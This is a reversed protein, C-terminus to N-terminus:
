KKKSNKRFKAMLRSSFSNKKKEAKALKALRKQEENWVGHTHMLVDPRDKFERQARHAQLKKMAEADNEEKFQKVKADFEEQTLVKHGPPREYENYRYLPDKLCKKIEEEDSNMREIHKHYGEITEERVVREAEKTVKDKSM